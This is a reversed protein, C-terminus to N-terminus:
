VLGLNGRGKLRSGRNAGDRWVLGRNAGDRWVLGFNPGIYPAFKPKTPRSSGPQSAWKSSTAWAGRPPGPQARAHPPRGLILGAAREALM